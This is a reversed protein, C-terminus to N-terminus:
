IKIVKLKLNHKEALDIMHKTGKSVGDWFCVCHTAYIAMQENRKYGASKGYLDWNPIFQKIKIEYENAYKEGLIDAGKAGGSVIEIINKHILLINLEAKLTEYDTFNRSGAIIVKM